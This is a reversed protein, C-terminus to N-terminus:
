ALELVQADKSMTRNADERRDELLLDIADRLSQICEDVTEGQGNAEPFEPCFAVFWKGERHVQATIKLQM